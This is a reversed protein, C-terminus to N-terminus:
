KKSQLRIKCERRTRFELDIRWIEFARELEIIANHIEAFLKYDEHKNNWM